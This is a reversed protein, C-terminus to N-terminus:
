YSFRPDDDLMLNRYIKKLSMEEASPHFGTDNEHRWPIPNNRRESKPASLPNTEGDGKTGSFYYSFDCTDFKIQPTKTVFHYATVHM